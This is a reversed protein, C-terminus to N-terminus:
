QNSPQRKLKLQKFVHDKVNRRNVNDIIRRKVTSLVKLRIRGLHHNFQQYVGHLDEKLVRPVLNTILETLPTTGELDPILVRTKYGSYGTGM